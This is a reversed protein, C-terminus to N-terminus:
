AQAAKWSLCALLPEIVRFPTIGGRHVTEANPAMGLASTAFLRYPMGGEAAAAELLHGGMLELLGHLEAQLLDSQAIDEYAAEMSPDRQMAAGPRNMISQWPAEPVDRMGQLVDFKSLVLGLAQAPGGDGRSTDAHHARRAALVQRLVQLDSGSDSPITVVGDLVVSIEPVKLPDILAAIMDVHGLYAFRSDDPALEEFDEGAADILSLCWRRQGYRFAWLLPQLGEERARATPPMLRRERYLPTVYREEFRQRTSGLPDLWSRHRLELFHGFQSMMVAILLSKGATRAGTMALSVQTDALWQRPVETGCAPCPGPGGVPGFCYPCVQAPELSM